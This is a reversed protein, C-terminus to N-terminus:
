FNRIIGSMPKLPISQKFFPTLEFLDLLTLNTIKKTLNSENELLVLNELELDCYVGQSVGGVM